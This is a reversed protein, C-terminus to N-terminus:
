NTGKPSGKGSGRRRPSVKALAGEPLPHNQEGALVRNVTQFLFATSWGILLIGNMAEFAALLRWHTPITAGTWGATTYAGVSLYLAEEINSAAHINTFLIAYLVIEILHVLFLGTVIGMPSLVRDVRLWPTRFRELHLQALKVLLVLGTLHVFCTVIAMGIAALLEIPWGL